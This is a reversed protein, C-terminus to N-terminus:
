KKTPPRFVSALRVSSPEVRPPLPRKDEKPEPTSPSPEADKDKEAVPESTVPPAPDSNAQVPTPASAPPAPTPQAAPAPQPEPRSLSPEPVADRVAESPIIATDGVAPTSPSMPTVDRVPPSPPVPAPPVPVPAKSPAALAPAAERTPASPPAPGSTVDAVEAGTSEVVFWPINAAQATDLVTPNHPKSEVVAARPAPEVNGAREVAGALADDLATGTMLDKLRAFNEALNQRSERLTLNEQELDMLRNRLAEREEKLEELKALVAPLAHLLQQSEGAWRSVIEQIDPEPASSAEFVGHSDM